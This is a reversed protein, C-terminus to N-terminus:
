KWQITIGDEGHLFPVDKVDIQILSIANFSRLDAIPDNSQFDFGINVGRTNVLQENIVSLFDPNASVLGVKWHKLDEVNIINTQHICDRLAYRLSMLRADLLNEALHKNTYGFNVQKFASLSNDAIGYRMLCSYKYFHFPVDFVDPIRKGLIADVYIWARQTREDKFGIQITSQSIPTITQM